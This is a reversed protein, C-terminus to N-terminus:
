VQWYREPGWRSAKLALPSPTAGRRLLWPFPRCLFTSYRRAASRCTGAPGSGEAPGIALCGRGARSQSYDRVSCRVGGSDAAPDQRRDRRRWGSRHRMGVAAYAQLPVADLVQHQAMVLKHQQPFAVDFRISSVLGDGLDPLPYRLRLISPEPNSVSCPRFLNSPLQVRPPNRDPQSMDNRPAAINLTGIDAKEMAVAGRPWAMEAPTSPRVIPAPANSPPIINPSGPATTPPM